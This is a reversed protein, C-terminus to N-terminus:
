KEYLTKIKSFFSNARTTHFRLDDIKSIPALGRITSTLFAEDFRALEDKLIGTERVDIGNKNLIEFVYKRTIGSLLGSDLCPTEVYFDGGNRGIFFINSTSAETIEIDSNVWLVDDFGEEEMEIMKVISPLYFPNKISAGRSYSVKTETKLSLGKTYLDVPSKPAPLAYILKNYPGKKPLLGLGEGRTISIRVYTKGFDTQKYVHLIEKELEELTWPLKFHISQASYQLRNLHEPLAILTQKSGTKTGLIVEFIADGFLFGRDLVSIKAQSLPVLDGNISVIGSMFSTAKNLAGNKALLHRHNKGLEM